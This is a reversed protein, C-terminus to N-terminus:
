AQTSEARPLTVELIFRSGGGPADEHVLSGGMLQALERSLALGPGTRGPRRTTDDDAQTFPEFIRERADPAIGPGSDSVEWRLWLDEGRRDSDLRIAIGGTPTFKLANGLLNNLVQSIRAPDGLVIPVPAAALSFALGKAASQLRWLEACEQTLAGPAFPMSELTMRGAELKSYDLVGDLLELLNRAAREGV